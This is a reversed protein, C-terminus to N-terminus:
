SHCQNAYDSARESLTPPSRSMQGVSGHLAQRTQIMCRNHVLGAQDRAAVTLTTM